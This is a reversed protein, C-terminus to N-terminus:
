VEKVPALVTLVQGPYITGSSLNNLARIEDVWERRDVEAPCYGSSIAWLSDGSRVTYTDERWEVADMTSQYTWNLLLVAVIVLVAAFALASLTNNSLFKTMM